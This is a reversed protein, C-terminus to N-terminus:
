TEKPSVFILADQIEQLSGDDRRQQVVVSPFQIKAVIKTDPTFTHKETTNQRRIMTRRRVNQTLNQGPIVRKRYQKM